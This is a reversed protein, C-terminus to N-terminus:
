GHINPGDELIMQKVIDKKTIKNKICLWPIEISVNVSFTNELGYDKLNYDEGGINIVKVAPQKTFLFIRHSGVASKIILEPLSSVLQGSEAALVAPTDDFYEDQIGLSEITVGRKVEPEHKGKHTEWDPGSKVEELHKYKNWDNM